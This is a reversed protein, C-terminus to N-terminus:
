HVAVTEKSRELQNILNIWLKTYQESTLDNRFVSQCLPRYNGNM